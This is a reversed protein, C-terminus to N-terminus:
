SKSFFFAWFFSFFLQGGFKSIENNKKLKGGFKFNEALEGSEIGKRIKSLSKLPNCKLKYSKALDQKFSWRALVQL